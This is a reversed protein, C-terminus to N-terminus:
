EDLWLEVVMKEAELYKFFIEEYGNEIVLVYKKRSAVNRVVATRFGFEVLRGNTSPTAYFGWDKAAFDYEAGSKRL